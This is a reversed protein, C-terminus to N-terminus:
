NHAVYVRTGHVYLSQESDHPHHVLVLDYVQTSEDPFLTGSFLQVVDRGAASVTAHLSCAHAGSGIGSGTGAGVGAGVGSGAGFGVGAGVGIGVGIGSGAGTVYERFSHGRDSHVDAHLPIWIRSYIHTSSAVVDSTASSSHVDVLGHYVVLAHM